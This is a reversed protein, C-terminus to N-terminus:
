KDESDKETVTEQNTITDIVSFKDQLFSLQLNIIDLMDSPNDDIEDCHESM